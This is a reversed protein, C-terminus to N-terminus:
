SLWSRIEDESESGTLRKGKNWNLNPYEKKLDELCKEVGSSGSTVFVDLKKEELHNEEIFTRIIMPATYWWVPFGIIIHDYPELSFDKERIAPRASQDKMELSSRSDEDMWDLDAQTYKEVPEIEYLDASLIESLYEAVKRTVGTASFYSILTKM